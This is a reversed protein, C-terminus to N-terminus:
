VLFVDGVHIARVTGDALRLSLIGTDDIGQYLGQHQTGDPLNVTLATGIPHAKARWHQLIAPWGGGRWQQLLREFTEALAELFVAPDVAQGTLQAVSTTKRDPLDPHSALNVGVGIVVADGTRELLIGSLKAGSALVDNPWKIQFDTTPAFLTLVDHLAVAVVFGLTPAPPDHPRLRILHSAYLNGTPSAWDRGLRGRGASQREARLWLGEAEGAQALALVDANTSATEKVTRIL